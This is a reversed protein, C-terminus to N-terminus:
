ASRQAQEQGDDKRRTRMTILRNIAGKLHLVSRVEEPLNHMSNRRRLEMRTIHELNALDIHTRDGDRFIVCFGRGVKRRNAKEWLLVHVPRWDRPPYGTDTVKRQLYGDCMRESGIPRWTHPRNGRKFQTERMRGPAYGPRRLGKNAPVHGKPFRTDAGVNDGRRLRCADTSELYAQSKLLGMRRAQQYVTTLSRQLEDAIEKTPIWAYFTRLLRREKGTWPRGSM